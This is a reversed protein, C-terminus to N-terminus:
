TSFPCHMLHLDQLLAKDLLVNVVKQRVDHRPLTVLNPFSGHHQLSRRKVQKSVGLYLIQLM